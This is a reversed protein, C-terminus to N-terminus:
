LYGLEAMVPGHAAEVAAAQAPTLARRWGGATGRRFFVQGARAKERFGHRAEAARLAEFRTAAVARAVAEPPAERGLHGAAAALAAAPDALMDEYRLLLTRVPAERWSRVHGGWSLLRQGLQPGGRRGDAGLVTARAMTAITRDLDRGLHEALSVAVDRPDRVVYIAAATLAPPFLPEGSATRTWADHVKRLQPAPSRAAELEYFRPRLGEIEDPTLDASDVDLLADFSGRDSAIGAFDDDAAFDPPAGGRHLSALALRLWTNGSKPYSALWHYGSM